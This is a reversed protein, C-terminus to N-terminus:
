NGEGVMKLFPDSFRPDTNLADDTLTNLFAILAARDEAPLHLRAPAGSADRLKGSLNPHANIGQAYHGIVDELRAFRGDHMYPSTVAINRLSAARFKGFDSEKRTIEGVGLDRLKHPVDLGNNEPELMVFAEGQHCQACGAGGAERSLLFLSKGRNEMDTFLAFPEQASDAGARALDYRSRYSVISRVYQALASAVRQPNVGDDGFAASFLAGYYTKQSLKKVLEGQKLGMEVPDTFPDLVQEELSAAREDRFYRGRPNFRANVLTMASRRTVKGEFGISLRTPDDFGLAQTHCSACAVLGNASLQRDHFIVRGLTAGADTIRGDDPATELEQLHRLHSPLDAAYRYSPIPLFPEDLLIGHADQARAALCATLMLCLM